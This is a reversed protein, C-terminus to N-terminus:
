FRATLSSLLKLQNRSRDLNQEQYSISYYVDGQLYDTLFRIAQELIIYKSGDLLHYLERDGLWDSVSELFGKKLVKYSELDFEVKSINPESEPATCCLTRVMDGFDMLISGPMVTDLDIVAKCAGTKQDFLLNSLKCDNHVIRQPFGSLDLTLNKYYFVVEDIYKLARDFRDAQANSKIKEFFSFRKRIDHFGPITEKIKKSDLRYFATHFNGFALGVQYVQEKSSAQEYSISDGIWNSMRWLKGDDDKAFFAGKTTKLYYPFEYPYDVHEIYAQLLSVNQMVTEPQTFVKQNFQQVVYYRVVGDLRVQVKYTQHILGGNLKDASLFHAEPLFSRILKEM